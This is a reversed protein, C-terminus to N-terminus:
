SAVEEDVSPAPTESPRTSPFADQATVRLVRAIRKQERVTPIDYGNEIRWYKYFKLNAKLAVDIQTIRREARLVRLRNRPAKM